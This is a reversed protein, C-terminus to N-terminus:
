QLTTPTGANPGLNPAAGSQNQTQNMMGEIVGTGKLNKAAQTAGMLQQMQQQQQAAQARADRKKQVDDKNVLLSLPARLDKWLLRTIGDRDFNDLVEPDAQAIPGIMMMAKNITEAQYAQQADSIPSIFVVNIKGAQAVKLPPDLLKGARYMIGFVRQVIPKLLEYQFRGLFPGIIRLKQQIRELVETATMNPQEPLIWLDYFFKSKISARRKDIEEDAFQPQSGTSIPEIGKQNKTGGPDSYFNIGGPGLKVPLAYGEDPMQVPPDTMKQIARLYTKCMANVMKIDPLANWAPSRGYIEGTMKKTRPVAYPFENYGGESIVKDEDMAIYVSAFPLNKQGGKYNGQMDQERKDDSRPYITHLIKFEDDEGGNEKKNSDQMKPTLSKEGFQQIIQRLTLTFERFLTDVFGDSNELICIENIHRAQFSLDTEKGESIYLSTTGLSLADLYNEYIEMQFNSTKIASHMKLACDELWQAVEPSSNLSDDEMKLEFWDLAENTMLGNLGSACMELADIATTDFIKDMKKQGPISTVTINAREPIIYEAIEQWNSEWYMRDSRAKAYRRCIEQVEDDTFRVKEDQGEM